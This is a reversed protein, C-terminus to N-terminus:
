EEGGPMAREASPRVTWARNIMWLLVALMGLIM